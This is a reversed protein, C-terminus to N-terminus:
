IRRSSSERHTWSKQFGVCSWMWMGRKEAHTRLGLADLDLGCTQAKRGCTVKKRSKRCVVSCFHPAHNAAIRATEAAPLTM